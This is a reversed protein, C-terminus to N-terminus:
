KFRLSMALRKVAPTVAVIVERAGPGALNAVLTGNTVFVELVVEGGMGVTEFTGGVITNPGSDQNPELTWEDFPPSAWGQERLLARLGDATLPHAGAGQARVNLYLGHSVSRLYLGLAETTKPDAEDVLWAGEPDFSLHHSPLDVRM